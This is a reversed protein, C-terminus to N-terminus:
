GAPLRRPFILSGVIMLLLAVITTSIGIIASLRPWPGLTQTLSELGLMETAKLWVKDIGLVAFTGAILALYAGVTSARKWYLGTALLVFAGTFYIAGTIWLYDLVDQREMQYWLGFFLLFLGVLLICLRALLLRAKTSLGGPVSPAIVDQVVVSAWCLLYSDHTSMFAALMGAAVLGIVGMPLIQGLFLPMTSLTATADGVMNGDPFFLERLAQHHWFYAVACIGLFMPLISRIMFGVASWCYIRKVVRINEAACVRMVATPWVGAAMVGASLVMWLVYEGGFGDGAFPNFGAEGHVLTVANVINGWGVKAVAVGCALLLGFSLVVFQLYDTIIVSVMGGLVTYTLVLLLLVSMVVKIYTPELGTIGTVFMAGIKLFVGMNLIGAVALIVGGLIRVGRSFRKEYYEPITMVGERRLPVVIFGTLGLFLAGLGAAVGIHFAAFGGTVGKQGMYMVTVLGLETGIMTAIGLCSKISRGAVLYDSMDTIYRNAYLGIVVTVALYAAVISWDLVTFNTQLSLESINM